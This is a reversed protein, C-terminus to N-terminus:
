VIVWRDDTIIKGEYILKLHEVCEEVTDFVEDEDVHQLLWSPIDYKTQGKGMIIFCPKHQRKATIFEEYSGCLHVNIDCFLVLVHSLDVMRLDYRGFIKVETQAQEWKQKKMLGQIRIKEDGIESGMGKPKNCPDYFKFPLEKKKCLVQFDRRWEVGDDAVRDIPGSLFIRLDDFNKM